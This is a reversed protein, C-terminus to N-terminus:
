TELAVTVAEETDGTRLLERTTSHLTRLQQARTREETVDQQIGIHNALEGDEDYVPTVSLRNWFQEGDKRYNRLDVTIPEEATIADRLDDLAPQDRDERQLFRCNRGLVEERSYGTQEVFGDNVYILPNDEADPDSLTIGVKAEDMAREKLELDRKRTRRATVEEIWVVTGVSETGITMPNATIDFYRTAGDTTVSTVGSEDDTGVPTFAQEFADITPCEIGLASQLNDAERNSEVLTGNTDYVFTADDAKEFFASRGSQEIRRFTDEVFVLMGLTFGAVGVPEFSLGLLIPPLQEAPLAEVAVRPVVPVLSLVALAGLGATPYQSKRFTDILWYFSIAVLTYTLTFSVWYFVQPEVVLHPYPDPQLDTKVYLGYLPNTLKITILSVYTGVALLRYRRDRHYSRGTYASIFYVWAGVGTLGWILGGIYLASSLTGDATLLGLAQFLLWLGNTMLVAKLGFRTDRGQLQTGYAAAAFCGIATLTFVVTIGWQITGSEGLISNLM